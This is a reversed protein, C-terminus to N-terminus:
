RKPLVQTPNVPKGAKRIELHLMTQDAGSDGVTAILDGRQVKDGEQVQIEENHAYASLYNNEHKIIVLRGYSKVGIGVYVVKGTAVAFVSDGRRGALDLGKSVESFQRTVTSDSPWSWKVGYRNRVEKPSQISPSQPPKATAIAVDARLPKQAAQQQANQLARLQADSYPYVAAVPGSKIPANGLTSPASNNKPLGGVVLSEALPAAVIAANAANASFGGVSGVVGAANDAASLAAGTANESPSAIPQLANASSGGSLPQLSSSQRAVAIAASQPVESPPTIRLVMGTNILDPDAIGNWLALDRYDLGSELAIAALTDGERVVYGKGGERKIRLLEGVGESVPAPIFAGGGCGSLLASAILGAGLLRCCRRTGNIISM